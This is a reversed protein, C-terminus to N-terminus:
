LNKFKNRFFEYAQNIEKAKKEAVDQIESGLASVKDPHYQAIANRYTAKIKSFDDLEDKSLGLVQAMELDEVTPFIMKKAEKQTYEEKPSEESDEVKGDEFDEPIFNESRKPEEEKPADPRCNSKDKTFHDPEKNQSNQQTQPVKAIFLDLRWLMWWTSCFIIAWSIKELGHTISNPSTGMITRWGSWDHYFGFLSSSLYHALLYSLIVAFMGGYLLSGSFLKPMVLVSHPATSRHMNQLFVFNHWRRFYIDMKESTQKREDQFFRTYLPLSQHYPDSEFRRVGFRASKCDADKLWKSVRGALSYFM